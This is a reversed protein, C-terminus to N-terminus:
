DVDEATDLGADDYIEKALKGHGFFAMVEDVSKCLEAEYRTHEGQWQSYGTRVCVYNGGTTEYLELKWSRGTSGSYDSSATNSSNSAVAIRRGKFRIPREGDRDIVHQHVPKQETDSM